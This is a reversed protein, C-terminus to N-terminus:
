TINEQTTSVFFTINIEMFIRNLKYITHATLREAKIEINEWFLQDRHSQYKLDALDSAEEEEKGSLAPECSM